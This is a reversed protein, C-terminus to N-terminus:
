GAYNQKIWNSIEESLNTWAMLDGTVDAVFLKDNPDMQARVADHMVSASSNAKVMWLSNLVHCWAGSIGKIAAYLDEYNKGPKMLDYAILFTRM